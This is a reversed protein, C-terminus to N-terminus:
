LAFVTDVGMSAPFVWYGDDWAVFPEAHFTTQVSQGNETLWVHEIYGIKYDDDITYKDIVLTVVDFLDPGFQEASRHEVKFRPFAPKGSLFDALFAAFSVAKNTDQQWPSDLTFVRPQDSGSNDDVFATVDPAELPKGRVKLLTIFGSNAGTYTLELEATKSGETFVISADATYDAGSGDAASNVTYDTTAVPTVITEAAVSQNNYRFQATFTIVDGNDVAPTDNLTWLTTENQEVLPHAFVKAVNRVNEWPMPLMVDKLMESEDITIVVPTAAHRSKFTAKGDAAIFFNGLEAEVLEYIAKSATEKDVWWYPIVDVGSGISQGWLTPWDVATLILPIATDAEIDSRVTISVESDKLWQLGDSLEFIVRDLKGSVPKIDSILGTFVTYMIMTTVDRVRLRCKVGPRVLAHAWPNFKDTYNTLMVTATGVNQRVFGNGNEYIFYERGRRCSFGIMYDTLDDDYVGNDNWDVDFFWWLDNAM